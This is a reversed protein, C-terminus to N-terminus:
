RDCTPFLLFLKTIVMTFSVERYSTCTKTMEGEGVVPPPPTINELRRDTRGATRGNVGVIRSAIDKNPPPIEIFSSAFM